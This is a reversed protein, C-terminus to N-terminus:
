KIKCIYHNVKLESIDVKLNKKTRNLANINLSIITNDQM